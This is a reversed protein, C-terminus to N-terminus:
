AGSALALVGSLDVQKYTSPKRVKGAANKGVAYFEGAVRVVQVKVVEESWSVGRGCHWEHPQLEREGERWGDLLVFKELNNDCVVDFAERLPIGFAIQNWFMTYAVDALGDLMEEQDPTGAAEYTLGDPANIPVGGVSPVVGLGRVVYELVESLLLQAGLIRTKKDGEIFRESTPQGGLEMFKKVKDNDM